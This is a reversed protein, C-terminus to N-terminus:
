RASKSRPADIPISGPTSFITACRCPRRACMPCGLLLVADPCVWITGHYPSSVARHQHDPQGCRVCNTDATNYM